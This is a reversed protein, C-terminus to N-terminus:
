YMKNRQERCVREGHIVHNFAKHSAHTHSFFGIGSLTPVSEQSSEGQYSWLLLENSASKLRQKELVSTKVETQCRDNKFPTQCNFEFHQQIQKDLLICLLTPMLAFHM